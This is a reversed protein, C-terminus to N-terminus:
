QNFAKRSEKISNYRRLMVAARVIKHFILYPFLIPERTHMVTYLASVPSFLLSQLNGIDVLQDERQIGCFLRYDHKLTRWLSDRIHFSVVNVDIVWRKGNAEVRDRLGRDVAMPWETPFGGIERM